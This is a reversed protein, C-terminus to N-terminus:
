RCCCHASSYTDYVVELPADCDLIESTPAKPLCGTFPVTEEYYLGAVWENAVGPCGVVCQMAGSQACIETCTDVPDSLLACLDLQPGCEGERCHGSGYPGDDWSIPCVRGCEGCNFDDTLLDAGGCPLDTVPGDESDESDAPDDCGSDSCAQPRGCGLALPLTVLALFIPDLLRM